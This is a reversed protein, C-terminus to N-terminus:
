PADAVPLRTGNGLWKGGDSSSRVYVGQIKCLCGGLCNLGTCHATADPLVVDVAVFPCGGVTVELSKADAERVGQARCAQM